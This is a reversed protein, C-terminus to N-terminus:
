LSGCFAIFPASVRAFIDVVFVGLDLLLLLLDRVQLLLKGIQFILQPLRAAIRAPRPLLNSIRFDDASVLFGFSSADTTRVFRTNRAEYKANM